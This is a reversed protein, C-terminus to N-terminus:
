FGSGRGPLEDDPCFQEFGEGCLTILVAAMPTTDIYAGAVGRSGGIRDRLYDNEPGPVGETGGYGPNGRLCDVISGGSAICEQLERDRCKITPRDDPGQEANCRGGTATYILDQLRKLCELPSMESEAICDWFSAISNPAPACRPDEVPCDECEPGPQFAEGPVPEDDLWEWSFREWVPRYVRGGIHLPINPASIEDDSVLRGNEYVRDRIVIEGSGAEDRDFTRIHQYTVNENEDKQGREHYVLNGDPDYMRIEYSSTGDDNETLTAIVKYGDETMVGITSTNGEQTVSGPLGRRRGCDPEKLRNVDSAADRGPGSGGGGGGGGGEGGAQALCTNAAEALNAGGVIAESMCEVFWMMDPDALFGLRGDPGLEVLVDVVLDNRLDIALQLAGNKRFTLASVAMGGYAPARFADIRVLDGYGNDFYAGGVSRMDDPSRMIVLGGTQLSREIAGSAAYSRVLYSLMGREDLLHNITAAPEPTQAIKQRDSECGALVVLVLSGMTIRAFSQLRM